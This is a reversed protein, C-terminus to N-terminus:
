DLPGGVSATGEQENPGRGTRFLDALFTLCYYLICLGSFPIAIYVLGMPLRLAPSVQQTELTRSVLDLGGYVM